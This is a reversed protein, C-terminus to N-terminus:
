LHHPCINPLAFLSCNLRGEHPAAKLWALQLSSRCLSSSHFGVVYWRSLPDHKLVQLITLIAVSRERTVRLTEECCRRFVGDVGSSGFGDVINATLRFPVHEPVYLEKGARRFPPVFFPILKHPWLPLRPSFTFSLGQDFAIGLDIHVFEGNTQDVLINSAHRDGLGVLHGVISTVAVSRAYALRSSFWAMPDRFKERFVHRMVPKIKYEKLIAEFMRGKDEKPGTGGGQARDIQKQRSEIAVGVAGYDKPGDPNYRYSLFDFIHRVVADVIAGVRVRFFVDFSRHLSVQVSSAQGMGPLLLYQLRVRHHWVDTRPPRRQLNPVSSSSSAHPRRTSPPRQRRWLAAGHPLRTPHRRREQVAFCFLRCLVHTLVCVFLSFSPVFGRVLEEHDRGDSDICTMIKPAHVGGAVRFESRYQKLSRFSMYKCTKDVPLDASPIPMDLNRLKPLALAPDAVLRKKQNKSFHHNPANSWQIAAKAYLNVHDFRHKIVPSKQIAQRLIHEAAQSRGTPEGKSELLEDVDKMSLRKWASQPKGANTQRERANIDPSPKCGDRLTVLQLLSHFPHDVALRGFLSQLNHQFPTAAKDQAYDLRGSIQMVLSTFKHSPIAQLSARIHTNLNDDRYHGIWLSTLRSIDDDFEDSITL